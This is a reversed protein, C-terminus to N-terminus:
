LTTRGVESILPSWGSCTTRRLPNNKLISRMAAAKKYKQKHSNANPMKIDNFISVSVASLQTLKKHKWLGTGTEPPAAQQLTVSM